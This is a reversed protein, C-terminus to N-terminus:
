AYDAYDVFVFTDGEGREYKLRDNFVGRSRCLAEIQQRDKTIVLLYNGHQQITSTRMFEKGNPAFEQGDLPGGVFKFM